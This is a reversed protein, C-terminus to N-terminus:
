SRGNVRRHVTDTVKGISVQRRDMIIIREKLAKLRGTLLEALKGKRGEKREPNCEESICLLRQTASDGFDPILAAFYTCVCLCTCELFFLLLGPFVKIPDAIILDHCSHSISAKLVNEGLFYNM